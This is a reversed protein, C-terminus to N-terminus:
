LNKLEGKDWKIKFKRPNQLKYAELFPSLEKDAEAKAKADAIAEEEVVEETIEETTEEEPLLALLEKNTADEDFTIEKAVLAEKIQEKNM